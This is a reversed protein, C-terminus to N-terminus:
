AGAAEVNKERRVIFKCDIGLIPRTHFITYTYFRKGAIVPNTHSQTNVQQAIQIGRSTFFKTWDLLEDETCHMGIHSASPEYVEMWHPGSTYNLVELELPKDGRTSEYNFALDAENGGAVGRVAGTAVVHDRAWEALGMESLLQIAAAPNRPHLALQEILFKM